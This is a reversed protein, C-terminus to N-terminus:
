NIASVDKNKLISNPKSTSYQNVAFCFKLAESELSVSVSASSDLSLVEDFEIADPHEQSM